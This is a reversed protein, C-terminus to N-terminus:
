DTDKDYSINDLILLLAREISLTLEDKSYDEIEKMLKYESRLYQGASVSIQCVEKSKPEVFYANLQRVFHVKDTLIDQVYIKFKFLKTEYNKYLDIYRGNNEYLPNKRVERRVDNLIKVVRDEFDENDVLQGDTLFQELVSGKQAVFIHKSNLKIDQKVEFGDLVPINLDLVNLISNSRKAIELLIDDKKM